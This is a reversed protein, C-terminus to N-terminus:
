QGSEIERVLVFEVFKLVSSTTCLYVKNKRKLTM